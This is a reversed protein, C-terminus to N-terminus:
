GRLELEPYSDPEPLENRNEWYWARLEEIVEGLTPWNSEGVWAPFNPLPDGTKWDYMHKHHPDGHGDYTHTNDYRLINNRGRVFANYQYEFTRVYADLADGELVELYKEVRVVIGGLCAIEGIMTLMDAGLPELTLTDEGVFGDARM